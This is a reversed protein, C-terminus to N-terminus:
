EATANVETEIPLSTAILKRFILVVVVIYVLSGILLPYILMPFRSFLSDSLWSQVYCLPAMGFGTALMVKWVPISTFGAAYSLLDTSTLPNLRLLFLLTAGRDRLRDQVRSIASADFFKPIWRTGISRALLCAVGAGLTNGIVALTGGWWPGFVLGGPAYLMLGPIPAVVVEVTVFLVYALPALPGCGVFFDRLKAVREQATLEAGFLEYCIGGARFSWFGAVVIGAIAVWLLVFALTQGGTSKTKNMPIEDDSKPDTADVGYCGL